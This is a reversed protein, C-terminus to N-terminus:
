PPGPRGRRRSAGPELEVPGEAFAGIRLKPGQLDIVVGVPRGVQKEMARIAEVRKRHEAHTGHSMNLRFVDVGARFLDSIVEPTSSVPGLTAVIKANRQRRM